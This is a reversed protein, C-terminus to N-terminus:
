RLILVFFGPHLLKAFHLWHIEVKASLIALISCNIKCFEGLAAMCLSDRNVGILVGVHVVVGLSIFVIFNPEM